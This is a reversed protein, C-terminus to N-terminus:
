GRVYSCDLKAETNNMVRLAKVRETEKCYYQLTLESACGSFIQGLTEDNAFFVCTQQGACLSQVKTLVNNAQVVALMPKTDAAEGPIVSRVTARPPNQILAQEIRPNCNMGWSASLITPSYQVVQVIRPGAPAPKFAFHLISITLIILLLAILHFKMKYSM